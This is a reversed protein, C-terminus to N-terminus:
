FTPFNNLNKMVFYFFTPLVTGHDEDESQKENSPEGYLAQAEATRRKQEELIEEFSNLGSYINLKSLEKVLEDEDYYVDDTKAEVM